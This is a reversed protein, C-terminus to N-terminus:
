GSGPSRPRVISLARDLLEARDASGGSRLWERQAAELASAAAATLLDATLADLREAARDRVAASILKRAEERRQQYRAQLVPTQEVLRLEAVRQVSGDIRDQWARVVHCLSEWTDEEPPRSRVDDAVQEGMVAVAGLVADEKSEFYRFFSRKSMGAARAIDDVTTQDFGHEAFMAVALESLESRVARRGRERLANGHEPMDSLKSKSM